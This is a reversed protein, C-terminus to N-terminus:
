ETYCNDLLLPDREKKPILTIIGKRASVYFSGEKIAQNIADLLSNKLKCWFVKYFEVSLGDCGPTKNNQMSHLSIALEDLTISTECKESQKATLRTGPLDGLDFAVRPNRSYLNKFYNAQEKLIVGPDDTISSDALRLRSMTKKNYKKKELNFFYKSSREGEDHWKCKNRFISAEVQLQVLEQYERQMAQLQTFAGATPFPLNDLDRQLVDIANELEIMKDRKVKAKEKSLEKCRSAVESKVFEWKECPSLEQAVLLSQDIIENIEKVFKKDNLHQANLKWYSPGRVRDKNSLALSVVSHDSYGYNSMIECSNLRSLLSDSILFYDLRSVKNGLRDKQWTYGKKHPNLFRWADTLEYQNMYNHVIKMANNNNSCTNERDLLPNLALNFDGCMIHETSECTNVKAMVENFFEPKDENPAYVNALVISQNNHTIDLILMRGAEDHIEKNVKYDLNRKILTIVGRAASTGCAVYMNGGWQASWLKYDEKTCHAEQIM